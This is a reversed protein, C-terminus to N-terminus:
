ETPLARIADMIRKGLHEYADHGKANLEEPSFDIPEGVSVTIPHIRLSKRHIPLAEYAGSIRLPQVPVKARSLIFGIGSMADHIEGDPSRSGEPFVMVRNGAKLLRIVTKLSTSDPNEQDIPIALCWPLCTKFIGKFLTKRAFFYVGEEYSIGLMPPDLFSQHNAVILVGGEEILRERHIVKHGFFARAASKFMTYFFWYFANM